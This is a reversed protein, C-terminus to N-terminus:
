SNCSLISSNSRLKVGFGHIGIGNAEFFLEDVVECGEAVIGGLKDFVGVGPFFSLQCVTVARTLPLPTYQIGNSSM